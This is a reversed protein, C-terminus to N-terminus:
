WESHSLIEVDRGMQGFRSGPLIIHRPDQADDHPNVSFPSFRRYDKESVRDCTRIDSTDDPLKLRSDIDAEFSGRGMDPGAQDWRYSLQQRAKFRNISGQIMVSDQDIDCTNTNGFGHTLCLHNAVAFSNRALVDTCEHSGFLNYDRIGKNEARRQQQLCVDDVLSNGGHFISRSDDDDWREM